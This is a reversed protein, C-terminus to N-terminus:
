PSGDPPEVVVEVWLKLGPAGDAHVDVEHLETTGCGVGLHVTVVVSEGAPVVPHPPTFRFGAGERPHFSFSADGPSANHLRFRGATVGGAAGRLQLLTQPVPALRARMRGLLGDVVAADERLAQERPRLVRVAEMYLDERRLRQAEPAVTDDRWTRELADVVRDVETSPVQRLFQFSRM